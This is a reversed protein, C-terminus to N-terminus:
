KIQVVVRRNKSKTAETDNSYAPQSEGKTDTEIKSEVGLNKFYDRVSRARAKGLRINADDSGIDCTHGTLYLYQDENESMYIKVSDAYAIFAPGPKFVASNFEFNADSFSMNTFSFAQAGVTGNNDYEDPTGSANEDNALTRAVLGFSIPVELNSGEGLLNSDLLIRGEPIGAKVLLKRAEDARALGLNEWIGITIDKEGPLYNGSITLKREPNAKLFAAVKDIFSRNNGNLIPVASNADFRFQEYDKLIVDDQDVLRLTKARVDEVVEIKQGCHNKIKCVYWYRCGIAWLLFVLFGLILTRM